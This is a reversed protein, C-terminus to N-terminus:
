EVEELVRKSGKPREFQISHKKWYCIITTESPTSQLHGFFFLDRNIQTFEVLKKKYPENYLKMMFKHSDMLRKTCLLMLKKTKKKM